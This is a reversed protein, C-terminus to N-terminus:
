TLLGGLIEAEKDKPKHIRVAENVLATTDIVTLSVQGDCMLARLIKDM